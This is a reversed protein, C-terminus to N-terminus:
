PANKEKSAAPRNSRDPTAAPVGAARLLERTTRAILEEEDTPIVLAAVRSAPTTIRAAGANNAGSDLHVGLWDLGTLVKERVVADNEGVGATFVICDAGAMVAAYAGIMKRIRYTYTELAERAHESGAAIARHIDRLDHSVGSLGLLGSERQLLRDLQDISMGSRLLHLIVGPDLDGTRSGMLLGALPTFGMSTDVSRGFQVACASAGNGLHLSVIRLEERPRGLAAAAKRTVSDHSTGHFGYNRIGHQEYYSRPLGTLFARPPVTRHFATDFVAVHPVDPLAVRAAEIGDLNVRNHLPALPILREIESVVDDDILIPSTYREGGHVVRHGVASISARAAAPLRGFTARFAASMKDGNTETMASWGNPVLRLKISSSGANVVLVGSEATDPSNM